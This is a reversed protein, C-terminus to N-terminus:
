QLFFILFQFMCLFLFFFFFPIPKGEIFYHNGKSDVLFEVTGANKYNSAKALKLADSLIKQRTEETISLAPAIEVIKQHRRQVSCDREFLHVHNSGDSLMQVEIHLPREILKEVFM